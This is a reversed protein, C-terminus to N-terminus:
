GAEELLRKLNGWIEREQRRGVLAVLPRALGLAGKPRVRWSWRMLTGSPGPEFTVEGETDMAAMTTRSALRTPRELATLEIAMEMPRGRITMTALFRSGVGIPEETTMEVRAMRPNYRPENREDAVFDFVVEPPRDIRIHGEIRVM